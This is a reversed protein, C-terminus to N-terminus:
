HGMGLYFYLFIGDAEYIPHPGACFMLILVLANVWHNNWRGDVGMTPLEMLRWAVVDALVVSCITAIVDAVLCYCRGFNAVFITAIVDAM